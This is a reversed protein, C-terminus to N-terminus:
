QRFSVSRLDEQETYHRLYAYDVRNDPLSAVPKQSKRLHRQSLICEKEALCHCHGIFFVHIAFDDDVNEEEM